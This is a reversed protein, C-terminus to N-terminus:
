MQKLLTEKSTVEQICIYITIRTYMSIINYQTLAKM